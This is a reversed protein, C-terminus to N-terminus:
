EKWWGLGLQPLADAPVRGQEQANGETDVWFLRRSYSSAEGWPGGHAFCTEFPEIPGTDDPLDPEPDLEPPDPDATLGSNIIIPISALFHAASAFFGRRPLANVTSM